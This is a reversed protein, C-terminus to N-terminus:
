LWLTTKAVYLIKLQKLHVWLISSRICRYYNYLVIISIYELDMVLLTNKVILWLKWKISTMLYKAM